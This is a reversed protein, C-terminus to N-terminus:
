KADGDHVKCYMLVYLLRFQTVTAIFLDRAHLVMMILDFKGIFQTVAECIYQTYAIRLSFIAM